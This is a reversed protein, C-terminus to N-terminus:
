PQGEVIVRGFMTQHGIGCYEHCVFRYEGPETFTARQRAIRGPIIMLNVNTGEIHMGHIVDRSTIWFEVQSGAPVRIENPTFFWVQAVITARYRGPAVEVVGPQDFPPTTDIAEPRITGADGPVRIGMGFASVIIAVIMGTPIAVSPLIWALEYILKRNMTLNNRNLM